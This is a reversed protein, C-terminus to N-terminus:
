YRWRYKKNIGGPNLAKSRLNKGDGLKIQGTKVKELIEEFKEFNNEKFIIWEEYDAVFENLLQLLRSAQEKQQQNLEVLNINTLSRLIEGKDNKLDELDKLDKLQKVRWNYVQGLVFEIGDIEKKLKNFKNNIENVAKKILVAGKSEGGEIAGRVEQWVSDIFFIDKELKGVDLLYNWGHHDKGYELYEGIAKPIDKAPEISRIEKQDM